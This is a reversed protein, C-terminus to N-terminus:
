AGRFAQPLEARLAQLWLERATQWTDFPTITIDAPEVGKLVTWATTHAPSVLDRRETALAVRDAHKVAAVVDASPLPVGAAEYILADLTRELARIPEGIFDKLPSILDGTFAEHADHLLGHARWRQPLLSAVVLSHQAVSYFGECHGGFRCTKALAEGIDGWQIMDITPNALDLTLGSRSPFWTDISGM